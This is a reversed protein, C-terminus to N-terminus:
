QGSRRADGRAVPMVVTVTLGGEARATARVTGHHAHAVSRVISLGLGAGRGSGPRDVIREAAALRRFPEFLGDVEFPPVAPGTNEVTLRATGDVTDVRVAIWGRGPHNYRVANDLLNQALRELLLADGSVAAAGIDARIEIGAPESAAGAVAIAHRAADALDVRVNTSLRQESGALVLLGDILREHRHNVELLTAGLRRTSEPADPDDLAVEILTRNITLPTRLEHSANAVFRRQGDFARDLRELMADFTDALDKIEDDPGHLDIREHLSRDAVRRATATIRQLPSLARGALAWGLGGAAIGVAGLSALSWVLMAELTERRNREAQAAVVDYLDQRDRAGSQALFERVMRQAGIGSRRELSQNLYFYMLGILVAGALFFAGAYLLTLRLRITSQRRRM